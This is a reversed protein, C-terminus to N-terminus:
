FTIMPLYDIFFLYVIMVASYVGDDNKISAAKISQILLSLDSYYTHILIM